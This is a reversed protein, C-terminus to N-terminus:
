KFNGKCGMLFIDAGLLDDLPSTLDRIFVRTLRIKCFRRFFGTDQFIYFYRILDSIFASGCVKVNKLGLRGALQFLEGRRFAGEYGLHWKNEKQLYFKLMEHPFFLRNPVSIVVVGGPRVLDLHAKAMRFRERGQYHEVTGFSMALDFKETLEPFPNLVDRELFSARIGNSSFCKGALTLAQRSYDVLTVEAGQKAFIFSYVGAGAGVEITKIGKIDGLYKNTYNFIKGGRVGQKERKAWWRFEADDKTGLWVRDWVRLDSM